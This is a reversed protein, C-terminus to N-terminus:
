IKKIVFKHEQGCTHCAPVRQGPFAHVGLSDMGLSTRFGSQWRLYLALLAKLIAKDLLARLEVRLLLM